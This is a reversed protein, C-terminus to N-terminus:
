KSFVKGEEITLGHNPHKKSLKQFSYKAHNVLIRRWPKRGNPFKLQRMHLNKHDGKRAQKDLVVCYFTDSLFEWLFALEKRDVRLRLYLANKPKNIAETSLGM